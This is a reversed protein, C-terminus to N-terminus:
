GIPALGVPTIVDLCAVTADEMVTMRRVMERRKTWRRWMMMMKRRRM